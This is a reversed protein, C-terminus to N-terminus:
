ALSNNQRCVFHLLHLSHIELFGNQWFRRASQFLGTRNAVNCGRVLIKDASLERPFRTLGDPCQRVESVHYSNSFPRIKSLGKPLGVIKALWFPSSEDRVVALVQRHVAGDVCHMAVWDLALDVERDVPPKVSFGLLVQASPGSRFGFKDRLNSGHSQLQHPGSNADHRQQLVDPAL